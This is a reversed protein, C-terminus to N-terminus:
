LHKALNLEFPRKVTEERMSFWMVSAMMYYEQMQIM